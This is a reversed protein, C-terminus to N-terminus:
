YNLINLKIKDCFYAPSSVQTKILGQKLNKTNGSARPQYCRLWSMLNGVIHCKSMFLGLHAEAAEPNECAQFTSSNLPSEQFTM